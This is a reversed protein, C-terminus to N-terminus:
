NDKNYKQLYIQFLEDFDEIFYKAIKILEEDMIKNYIEMNKINYRLFISLLNESLDSIRNLYNNEEFFNKLISFM